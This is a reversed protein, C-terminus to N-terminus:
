RTPWFPTWDGCTDEPYARGQNWAGVCVRFDATDVATLSLPIRKPSVLVLEGDPGRTEHGKTHFWAPREKGNVRIVLIASKGDADDDSLLFERRDACYEASAHKKRSEARIPRTLCDETKEVPPSTSRTTGDAPTTIGSSAEKGSALVLWLVLAVVVAAAVVGHWPRLLRRAREWWTAPAEDTPPPPTRAERAAQLQNLLVLTRDKGVLLQCLAAFDEDKRPLRRHKCWDRVTAPALQYNLEKRTRLQTSAHEPSRFGGEKWAADFHRWFASELDNKHDEHPMGLM